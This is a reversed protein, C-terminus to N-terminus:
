PLDSVRLDSHPNFPVNGKYDITEDVEHCAVYHLVSRVAELAAMADPYEADVVAGRTVTFSQEPDFNDLGTCDVKLFVHQHDAVIQVTCLEVTVGDTRRITINPLVEDLKATM